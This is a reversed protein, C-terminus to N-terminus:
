LQILLHQKIVLHKLADFCFTGNEEFNSVAIGNITDTQTGTGDTTHCNTTPQPIATPTPTPTCLNPYFEMWLYNLSLKRPVVNADYSFLTTKSTIENEWQTQKESTDNDTIFNKGIQKGLNIQHLNM